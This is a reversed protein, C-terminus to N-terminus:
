EIPEPCRTWYVTRPVGRSDRAQGSYLRCGWRLATNTEQSPYNNVLVCYSQALQSMQQEFPAPNGDERLEQETVKMSLEAIAIAANRDTCVSAGSAPSQLTTSLLAISGIRVYRRM